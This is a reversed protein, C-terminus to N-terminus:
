RADTCVIRVRRQTGKGGLRLEAVAVLRDVIMHRGRVRYNVLGPASGKGELVFLPPMEGQAVSSPFEIFVQRGDDFARLPRWPVADGEIRYRFQLHELDLGSEASTPTDEAAPGRNAHALEEEPYRWSVSAMYTTHMARLEVHYTRRDTNIVVNTRLESRTPKVLIHVRRAAGSGSETDGIIWRVTVGAAIPGSSVLQEGPQLAIDTVQGPAAYVQFLAGEAYPYVQVANLYGDRTPEVRAAANALSVRSAPDRPEPRRILPSPRAGPVAALILPPTTPPQVPKPSTQLVAQQMAPVAAAAETAPPKVSACGAMACSAFLVAAQSRRM